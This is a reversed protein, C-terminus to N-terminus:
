IKSLKSSTFNHQNTNISASSLVSCGGGTAISNFSSNTASIRAAIKSSDNNQFSNRVAALSPIASSKMSNSIALKTKAVPQQSPNRRVPSTNPSKKGSVLNVSSSSSSTSSTLNTQNTTENLKFNNKMLNMKLKSLDGNTKNSVHDAPKILKNTQKNYTFANATVATVNAATTAPSNSENAINQNVNTQM